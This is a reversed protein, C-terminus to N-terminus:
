HVRARRAIRRALYGVVAVNVVVLWAAWRYRMALAWGELSSLVGDLALGLEALHVGRESVLQGLARGALVAWRGAVERELHSALDDASALRLSKRARQM